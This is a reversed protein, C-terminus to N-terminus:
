LACNIKQFCVMFPEPCYKKIVKPESSMIRRDDRSIELFAPPALTSKPKKPDLKMSAANTAQEEVNPIRNRNFDTRNKGMLFVAVETAVRGPAKGKADIIHKNM